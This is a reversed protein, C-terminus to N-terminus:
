RRLIFRCSIILSVNASYQSGKSLVDEIKRIDKGQYFICMDDAYLYSGSESLSQPLDNICILYLLPGLISGQHVGSKLIEAGLFIDDVSLFFKLDSLYSECWKILPTKLGLFRRKQLLIKHGPTNLSKQVDILIMSTPTEKNM